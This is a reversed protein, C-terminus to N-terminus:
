FIVPAKAFSAKKNERKTQRGNRSGVLVDPSDLKLYDVKESQHNFSIYRLKCKM